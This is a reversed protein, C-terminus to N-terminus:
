YIAQKEEAPALTFFFTAGKNVTSEAWIRGGHRQIIRQVIALGMGTGEFQEANHLRQFTGFLKEVDKMDFGAGNDQVYYILENTINTSGVEIRSSEKKSSYKIANSLLNTWVQRLLSADGLCQPLTHLQFNFQERNSTAILEDWCSLALAHMDVKDMRVSQKGLRAFALLDDILSAMRRTQEQIPNLYSSLQEKSLDAFDEQLAEAYGALIRLPSRLDHTVSATFTELEQNAYALAKGQEILEQKQNYETTIDQFVWLQGFAEETSLPRTEVALVRQPPKNQLITWKSPLSVAQEQPTDTYITANAHFQQMTMSFDIAAVNVSPLALIEKAQTNMWAEATGFDVFVVGQPITELITSLRDQAIKLQRDLDSLPIISQFSVHLSDLPEQMELLKVPAKWALLVVGHFFDSSIPLLAVSRAGWHTLIRNALPNDAYDEFFVVRDAVLAFDCISAMTLLSCINEEPDAITCEITVDDIRKLVCAFDAKTEHRALLLAALVSFDSHGALNALRQLATM